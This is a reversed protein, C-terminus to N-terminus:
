PAVLPGAQHLVMAWRGDAGQSFVNTAVLKGGGPELEEYCSVCATGGGLMQCRVDTPTVKLNSTSFIDKWSSIIDEWGHLPGHGPHVCVPPAVNSKAWLSGMREVDSETFARYFESNISLVAVEADLTINSMEDRLRAAAGYDESTVALELEAELSRYRGHREEASESMVAARVRGGPSEWRVVSGPLMACSALALSLQVFMM